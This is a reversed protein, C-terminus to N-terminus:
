TINTVLDFPFYEYDKFLKANLGFIKVIAAAEISWYGFFPSAGNVKSKKHLNHWETKKMKDYWGTLYIELAAKSAEKENEALPELDGFIKPYCLKSSITGEKLGNVFLVDLLLDSGKKNKEFSTKLEELLDRADYIIALCTLRLADNYIGIYSKFAEPNGTEHNEAVLYNKVASLAVDKLQSVPEGLSYKLFFLRLESYYMEKYIYAWNAVAPNKKAVHDQMELIYNARDNIAYELYDRDKITQRM